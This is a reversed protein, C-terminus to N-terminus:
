PRAGSRVMSLEQAAPMATIFISLPNPAPTNACLIFRRPSYDHIQTCSVDICDHFYREILLASFLKKPLRKYTRRIELSDNKEM